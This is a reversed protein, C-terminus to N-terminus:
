HSHDRKVHWSSAGVEAYRACLRGAKIGKGGGGRVEVLGLMLLWDSM